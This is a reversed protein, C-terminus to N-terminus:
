DRGREQVVDAMLQGQCTPSADLHALVAIVRERPSGVAARPILELALRQPTQAPALPLLRDMLEGFHTPPADDAVSLRADHLAGADLAVAGVILRRAFIPLYPVHAPHQLDDARQVLVLRPDTLGEAQCQQHARHHRAQQQPSAYEHDPGAAPAAPDPRSRLIASGM